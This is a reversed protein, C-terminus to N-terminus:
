LQLGTGKFSVLEYGNENLTNELAETDKIQYNLM